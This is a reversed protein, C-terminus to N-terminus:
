PQFDSIKYLNLTKGERSYFVPNPYGEMKEPYIRYQHIQELFEPVAYVTNLMYDQLPLISSTFAEELSIYRDNNIDSEPNKVAELFFHLWASGIVPLGEKELGCWSLEDRSSSGILFGPDSERKTLPDMYQEAFCTDIILIKQEQELSDWLRPFWATFAVDDGLYPGHAFIYFVVTDDKGARELIWAIAHEMDHRNVGEKLSLIHGDPIGADKLLTIISDTNRYAVDLPTYDSPYFNQELIVAWTREPPVDVKGCGALAIFVPFFVTALLISPVRISRDRM